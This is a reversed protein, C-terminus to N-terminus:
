FPIDDSGSAVREGAKEKAELVAARMADRIAQKRDVDLAPLVGRPKNPDNIFRIETFRSEDEGAKPKQKQVVIEVEKSGLGEYNFIDGGPFTCGCTRLDAISYERAKDSLWFSRKMEVDRHDESTVRFTVEIFPTGTNPTEGDTASEILAVAMYKGVPLASM